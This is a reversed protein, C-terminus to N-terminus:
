QSVKLKQGEKVGLNPLDNWQMLQEISVNYTKSI